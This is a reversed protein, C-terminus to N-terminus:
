HPVRLASLHRRMASLMPVVPRTITSIVELKGCFGAERLHTLAERVKDSAGPGRMEDNTPGPADMSISVSGIKTAVLRTATERDLFFGNTVMGYPFGLRALEEFLTFIGPKLLPEGGTVAIMVKAPEFDGAIQRVIGIWEAAGLEDARPGQNCDSGCYACRLNCRRTVELFLYELPHTQVLDTWRLQHRAWMAGREGPTESELGDGPDDRPKQTLEPPMHAM